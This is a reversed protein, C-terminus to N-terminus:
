ALGQAQLGGRKQSRSSYNYMIEGLINNQFYLEVQIIFVDATLEIINPYISMKALQTIYRGSTQGVSITLTFM